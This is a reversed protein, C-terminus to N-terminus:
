RDYTFKYEIAPMALRAQDPAHLLLNLANAGFRMRNAFIQIEDLRIPSSIKRTHKAAYSFFIRIYTPAQCATLIQIPPQYTTVMRQLSVFRAFYPPSLLAFDEQSYDSCTQGIDNTM